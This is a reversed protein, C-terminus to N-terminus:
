AQNPFPTKAEPSGPMMQTVQPSGLLSGTVTKFQKIRGQFSVFGNGSRRIIRYHCRRDSKTLDSAHRDDLGGFRWGSVRRCCRGLGRLRVVLHLAGKPTSLGLLLFQGTLRAKLPHFGMSITPM